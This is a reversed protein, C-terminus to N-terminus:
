LNVLLFHWKLRRIEEKIMERWMWSSGNAGIAMNEIEENDKAKDTVKLDKPGIELLYKLKEEVKQAVYEDVVEYSECVPCRGNGKLRPFDEIDRTECRRGFLKKLRKEIKM